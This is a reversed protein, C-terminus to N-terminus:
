RSPTANSQVFQTLSLFGTKWPQYSKCVSDCVSHFFNMMWRYADERSGMDYQLSTPVSSFLNTLRSQTDKCTMSWLLIQCVVFMVDKHNKNFQNELMVSKFDMVTGTAEYTNKLSIFHYLRMQNSHCPFIDYIKEAQGNRSVVRKFLSLDKDQIDSDSQSGLGIMERHSSGKLLPIIKSCVNEVWLRIYNEIIKARPTSTDQLLNDIQTLLEDTNPGRPHPGRRMVENEQDTVDHNAVVKFVIGLCDWLYPVKDDDCMKALIKIKNELIDWLTHDRQLDAM